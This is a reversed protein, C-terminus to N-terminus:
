LKFYSVVDILKQAESSLTISAEKSQEVLSANEQTSADMKLVAQNVQDVGSQQEVAKISIDKMINATNEIKDKIDVFIEQSKRAAETAVRIKEDSDAILSTIDKVSTQTNQALTRVESAVVSFGRGQEGARAAEVSANLALINTQFAIDEILKTINTIKRSAEYVDEMSKTTSDIIVGAEEVSRKSDNMMNNGIVSKEASNKITSAMQEMSSATQELSSSQSQTRLALDNNGSALEKSTLEINNSSDIINSVIHKLKEITNNFGNAIIGFEHNQYKNTLFKSPASVTLDGNGLRNLDSAIRSLVRSINKNVYMIVIFSTVLLLLISLVITIMILTNRDSYFESDLMTVCMIWEINDLRSFVMVKEGEDEYHLSGKKQTSAAQLANRSGESITNIKKVDKHAVRKGDEDVIYINGTEGITIESFYKKAFNNWKLEAALVGAPKGTYDIVGALISIVYEQNLPSVEIEDDISYQYGTNVFREWLSRDSINTQITSGSSSDTLLNGKLDYLSLSSVYTSLEQVLEELETKAITFTLDNPDKFYDLFESEKAIVSTLDKQDNLWVSVLDRYGDATEQFGRLATKEIFVASASIIVIMLVILMIAVSSIITFPMKFKLTQMFKM